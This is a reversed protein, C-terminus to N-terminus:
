ALFEKTILFALDYGGHAVHHFLLQEGPSVIEPDLVGIAPIDEENVAFHEGKAVLQRKLVQVPVFEREDPLFEQGQTWFIFDV